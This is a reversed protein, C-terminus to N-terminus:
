NKNQKKPIPTFGKILFQLVHCLNVNSYQFSLPEFEHAQMQNKRAVM